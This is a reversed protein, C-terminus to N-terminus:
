LDICQRMIQVRRSPLDSESQQQLVLGHTLVWQQKNGRRLVVQLRPHSEGLRERM